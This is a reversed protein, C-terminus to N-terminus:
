PVAEKRLTWGGLVLAGLGFLLTGLAVVAGLIPVRFALTLLAVGFFLLGGTKLRASTRAKSLAVRGVTLAVVPVSALAAVALLVLGILGIWWGGVLAGLLLMLVVIVPVAVLTVAGWGLSKWPARGLVQTSSQLFRPALFALLLGLATFAILGRLWGYLGWRFSGAPRSSPFHEVSAAQAGPAVTAEKPSRYVLGGPLQATSTVHVNSGSVAAPGEVTGGLHVTGSEVSLRRGIHGAFTAQGAGILADRGVQAAKGVDLQGAGVVLDEGIKGTVTVNGSGVRASGAINGGLQTSGTGAIVDGTVEGRFDLNGAAVVLDGDIRGEVHVEQAAVYVDESHVENPGIVVREGSLLTAGFAPTCVWLALMFPVIGRRPHPFHM